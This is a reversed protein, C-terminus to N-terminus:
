PKNRSNQVLPISNDGGSLGILILNRHYNICTIQREGLKSQLCKSDWTPLMMLPSIKFKSTYYHSVVLLTTPPYEKEIRM